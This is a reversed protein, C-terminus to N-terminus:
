VSEPVICPERYDRTMLGNAQEDGIARGTSQNLRLTRGVRLSINALHVFAASHAGIAVDAHLKRHDRARIAEFFNAMHGSTEWDRKEQPKEDM